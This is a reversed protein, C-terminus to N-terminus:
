HLAMFEANGWALKASGSIRTLLGERTVTGTTTGVATGSWTLELADGKVTGQLTGSGDTRGDAGGSTIRYTGNVASGVATLTMMGHGQNPVFNYQWDGSVLDPAGAEAVEAIGDDRHADAVVPDVDQGGDATGADAVHGVEPAERDVGAEQTVADPLAEHGAEAGAETVGPKLPSTAVSGCCQVAFALLMLLGLAILKM